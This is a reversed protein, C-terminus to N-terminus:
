SSARDIHRTGCSRAFLTCAGQKHKKNFFASHIQSHIRADLPILNWWTNPGNHSQPIIHHADFNDGRKRLICKGGSKCNIKRGYTPWIVDYHDEWEQILAAKNTNFYKHSPARELKNLAKRNQYAKSLRTKAGRAFTHRSKKEITDLYSPFNTSANVQLSSLFIGLCVMTTKLHSKFM